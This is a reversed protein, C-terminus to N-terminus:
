RNKVLWYPIGEQNGYGTLTVAHNAPKTTPASFIGAQPTWLKTLNHSHIHSRIHSRIHSCTHSQTHAYRQLLEAKEEASMVVHEPVLTHDTINILLETELFMEMNYKPAM